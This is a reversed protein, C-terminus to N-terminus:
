FDGRFVNTQLVLFYKSTKKFYALKLNTYKAIVQKM